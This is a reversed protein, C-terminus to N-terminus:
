TASISPNVPWRPRCKSLSVHSGDIQWVELQFHWERWVNGRAQVSETRTYITGQRKGDARPNARFEIGKYMKM